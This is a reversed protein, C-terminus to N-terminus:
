FRQCSLFNTLRALFRSSSNLIPQTGAMFIAARNLPEYPDRISNDDSYGGLGGDQLQYMLNTESTSSEHDSYIATEGDSVFGEELDAGHIFGAFAHKM